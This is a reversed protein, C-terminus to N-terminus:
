KVSPHQYLIKKGKTTTIRLICHDLITPGGRSRTNYLTIPIPLSGTTRGIYGVEKDGWFKGDLKSGYEIIVRIHADYCQTIVECVESLTEEKFYLFYTGNRAPKQTLTYKYNGQM